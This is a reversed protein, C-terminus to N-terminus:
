LTGGKLTCTISYTIVEVFSDTVTSGNDTTVEDIGLSAIAPTVSTFLGTYELNHILSALTAMSDLEGDINLRIGNLVFSDITVNEPMCAMITRVHGATFFSVKDISFDIRELSSFLENYIDLKAREKSVEASRDNVLSLEFEKEAVKNDWEKRIMYLYFAGAVFALAMIIVTSIVIIQKQHSSKQKKSYDNFFNM